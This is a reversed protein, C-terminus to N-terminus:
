IDQFALPASELAPLRGFLLEGGDGKRGEARVHDQNHNRLSRPAAVALEASQVRPRALSSFGPGFVWGCM